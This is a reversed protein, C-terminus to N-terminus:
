PANPLDQPGAIEIRRQLRIQNQRERGKSNLYEEREIEELQPHQAALDFWIRLTAELNQELPVHRTQLFADLALYYRVANREIIGRVGGVPEKDGSAPDVTQTFGEKGRGLTALYLATSARSFTSPAYSCRVHVATGEPQPSAEVEIRHDRTGLPGQEAQMTVRLAGGSERKATFQYDLRYADEPAEYHKRGSYLVLLPIGDASGHACAKTNLHLALFECWSAPDALADSIEEFPFPLHGSVEAWIQQPSNASRIELAALIQARGANAAQAAEAPPSSQGDAGPCPFLSLLALAVLAMRLVQSIRSVSEQIIPKMEHLTSPPM